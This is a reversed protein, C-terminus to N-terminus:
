GIFFNTASVTYNGSINRTVSSFTVNSYTWSMNASLPREDKNRGTSSVQNLFPLQTKTFTLLSM